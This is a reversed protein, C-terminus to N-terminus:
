KKVVWMGYGNLFADLELTEQEARKCRNLKKYFPCEAGYCDRFSVLDSAYITQFGDKTQPIHVTETRYPCRM